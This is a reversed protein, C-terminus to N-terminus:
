SAPLVRMLAGHALAVEPAEQLALAYHRQFASGGSDARLLSRVDALYSADGEVLAAEAHEYAAAPSPEDLREDLAVILATLPQLWAFAPAGIVLELFTGASVRGHEREYRIRQADLLARHVALLQHRVTSLRRM